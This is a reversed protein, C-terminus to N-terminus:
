EDHPGKLKLKAQNQRLFEDWQFIYEDLDDLIDKATFKNLAGPHSPISLPTLHPFDDNVYTPEKGRKEQRM